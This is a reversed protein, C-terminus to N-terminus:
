KPWELGAAALAAKIEDDSKKERRLRKILHTAESELRDRTAMEAARDSKRKAAVTATELNPWGSDIPMSPNAKSLRCIMAGVQFGKAQGYEIIQMALQWTCGCEKAESIAERWRSAGLSALRDAVAGWGFVRGGGARGGTLADVDHGNSDPLDRVLGSAQHTPQSPNPQSPNPFSPVHPPQDPTTRLQGANDTRSAVYTRQQRDGTPKAARMRRKRVRERIFEPCHELWDHIVLRNTTDRDIWGTDVLARVLASPDPGDWELYEAIEEDSFKGVDGEDACDSCLLWLTELIGVARYLPIGLLRKLRKVKLHNQTGAKV